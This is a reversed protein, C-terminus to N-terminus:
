HDSLHKLTAKTSSTMHKTLAGSTLGAPHSFSPTSCTMDPTQLGIRVGKKRGMGAM